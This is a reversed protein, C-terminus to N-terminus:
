FNILGSNFLLYEVKAFEEDKKKFKEELQDFDNEAMHHNYNAKAVEIRNNHDYNKEKNENLKNDCEKLVEYKYKLEEEVM